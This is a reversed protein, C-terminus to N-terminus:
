TGTMLPNPYNDSQDEVTNDLCMFDKEILIYLNNEKNEFSVRDTENWESIMRQPIFVTINNNEFVASLQGTATKQLAYSLTSLGFDTTEELYGNNTLREIDTRTLRYRISNGKIRIKM